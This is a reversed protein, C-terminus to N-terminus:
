WRHCTRSGVAIDNLLEPFERFRKAPQLTIEGPYLQGLCKVYSFDERTGDKRIAFFARAEGDANYHRVQFARLGCGIKSAASPHGKQILDLLVRYEYENMDTDLPSTSLLAKLYDACAKGTEFSRYGLTLPGVHGKRRKGAGNTQEETTAAADDGGPEAEEDVGAEDDEEGEDVGEHEGDEADEVAHADDSIPVADETKMEATEPAAEGLPEVPGQEQVEEKAEVKAEESMTVLRFAVLFLISATTLATKHPRAMRDEISPETQRRTDLTLRDHCAATLAAGILHRHLLAGVDGLVCGVAAGSRRFRLDSFGCAYLLLPEEPAMSYQPKRPHAEVDLLESVVEPREQGRGVMLLVAAMCRVQHWLFATGRVTIAFVRHAGDSSSTPVPDLTFSLIRRRFSRVTAVDPKCFNRFDHEGVFRAAAARMADIDLSYRCSEPPDPHYVYRSNFNEPVATWGLVRVDPPLAKNVLRPYDYELELPAEPEDVRAVSRLNLAVVGGWGRKVSSAEITNETNDQRAFGQYSWGVYMLELAVFRTRYRSFDFERPARRQKKAPQGTTAEASGDVVLPRAATAAGAAAGCGGGDTALGTNNSAIRMQEALSALQDALDRLPLSDDAAAQNTLAQLLQLLEARPRTANEAMSIM